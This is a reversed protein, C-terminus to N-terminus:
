ISINRAIAFFHEFDNFKWSFIFILKDECDFSKLSFYKLGMKYKVADKETCSPTNKSFEGINRIM